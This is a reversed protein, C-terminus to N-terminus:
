KLYKGIIPQLQVRTERSILEPNTIIANGLARGCTCSVELNGMADIVLRIIDKALGVNATLNAIIMDVTVHDTEPHWCDYDTVMAVTTYCIEAERALKAEPLNTMGIVSMGISRYFNSEARTSFAPGEMNVYIGGRHVKRSPDPSNVIALEAANTALEAMQPCVPHAFAIHAVIGNGFFTHETNNKTRDFYQDVIVVDRPRMEAKLSGVASISLIHTIGLKKMAFINARHNLEGPALPHGKGHRPLFVIKQGHLTGCTFVDSPDGFPTSIKQKSLNQIEEIQDLGSGGIIGLKM